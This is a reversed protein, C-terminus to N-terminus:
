FYLFTVLSYLLCESFFVLCFRAHAYQIILCQLNTGGIFEEEVRDSEECLLSYIVSHQIQRLMNMGIAVHEDVDM